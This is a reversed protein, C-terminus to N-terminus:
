NPKKNDQHGKIHKITVGEVGDNQMTWRIKNIVDWDPELTSNTHSQKSNAWNGPPDDEIDHDNTEKWISWDHPHNDMSQAGQNDDEEPDSGNVKNVLSINDSTLTWKWTPTVQCYMQLQKVFRLSPCCAMVKLAVHHSNLGGYRVMHKFWDIRQKVSGDGAAQFTDRMKEYTTNHADYKMVVYQLLEAEWLDTM